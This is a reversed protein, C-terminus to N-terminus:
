DRPGLMACGFVGGATNGPQAQFKVTVKRKEATLEPPVRYEVDFFEGPRDHALTQTAIKKDDVMVDFTRRGTEDGWYTCMLTMPRGPLVKLEYSFWGGGAHRWSRGLHRGAATAQGKLGHAKESDEDGIKVRDATRAALEKERAAQRAEREKRDREQEEWQKQNLIRWYVAYRQGFLRHYATLTVDKPRGVNVTRFTLPRGEVPQIWRQPDDSEVVLTPAAAIQDIPFRFWNAKTYVLGKPLPQGDLEGALVVPGYMVAALTPDDPMPEIRLGMPMTIEVTEGGQWTRRFTLYGPKGSPPPTADSQLPVTPGRKVHHTARVGKEAWYPVRVHLTLEVPKEAHFILCTNDSEPFETRQEIRLGKEPWSLESAIFQNVYLSDDGHFYISDGYKAHNEMGTGTCCWFSDNPTNFYKWRGSALTVFYMMMGTQTDQTSLIGNILAREYYDAYAAKPDWCFLHRTLKLMNYTCCTEQTHDGLEAALRGPETRWHERNSTGGTCYCRNETVQHWFYDAITRDRQNGTLEYQRATGIINPIFSNVHQGELRDQQEALPDNYSNQNFRRSLALHDPDGTVAYLNALVENMGGQETRDLMRQVHQRDLRDNRAKAWAAMRKLVELAQQNDCHVYMDLLGAYIKHLVYYPAWVPKQAEARDIWTEPYASLYGIEGIAQQCKALEAVIADAKAKLKEDGTSAYMLACASLYHGMTHGRVECDPREWGGLPEASSPLGANIRFTHLLRDSDLRHLYQRTRQMADRFPGDLLRVQKLDFPWARMQIAQEARATASTGLLMALVILTASRSM